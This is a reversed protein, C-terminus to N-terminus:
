PDFPDPSTLFALLTSRQPHADLWARIRQLEAYDDAGFRATYIAELAARREEARLQRQWPGDTIRHLLRHLRQQRLAAWEGRDLWFSNCNGCQDIRFPLARSVPYSLAIHGCGPCRKAQAPDGAPAPAEAAAPAPAPAPQEVWAWYDSSAIWVGDCQPCAHAPLHTELATARLPLKCLPCNM